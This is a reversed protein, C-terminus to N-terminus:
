RTNNTPALLTCGVSAGAMMWAGRASAGAQSVSPRTNSRWITNSMWLVSACGAEFRAL